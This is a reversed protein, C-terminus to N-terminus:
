VRDDGASARGVEGPSGAKVRGFWDAQRDAVVVTLDAHAPGVSAVDDDVAEVEAGTAVGVAVHVLVHDELDVAVCNGEARGPLDAVGHGVDGLLYLGLELVAEAGLVPVELLHAESTVDGIVDVHEDRAVQRFARRDGNAGGAAIHLDLIEVGADGDRCGAAIDVQLAHLSFHRGVAGTAVDLRVRQLAAELGIGGAAIDRHLSAVGPRREAGDAAIDGDAVERQLVGAYGRNAARDRHVRHHVVVRFVGEVGDAAIHPQRRGQRGAAGGEGEARHAASRGHLSVPGPPGACAGRRKTSLFTARLDADLRHGAAQLRVAHDGAIEFGAGLAHRLVDGLIGPVFISSGV